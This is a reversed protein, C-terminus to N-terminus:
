SLCSCFTRQFFAGEDSLSIFCPRSGARDTIVHVKNTAEILFAVYEGDSKKIGQIIETLSVISKNSELEEIFENYGLCVIEFQGRKLHKISDLSNKKLKSGLIVEDYEFLSHNYDGPIENELIQFKNLQDIFKEAQQKKGVTAAIFSM